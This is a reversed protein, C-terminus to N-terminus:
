YSPLHGRCNWDKGLCLPDHGKGASRFACHREIRDKPYQTGTSGVGTGFAGFAGYTCTHSDAGVFIQGPRVIGKETILQHCIGEGSEFLICGQKLAFERMMKHLNAIMENPAPAAHDIVFFCKDSNWVRKGGMERFAKIALPATTDTAMAGDVHAIVIEDKHVDRGAHRSIIKEIITQGM